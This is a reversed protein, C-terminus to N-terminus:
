GIGICGVQEMLHFREVVCHATLRAEPDHDWCEAITDCLIEMGPDRRWSDPIDPRGRGHLVVDRMTEVCPHQRVMSGFPLEYNKVEGIADCRSAVEWLVLSLSYVDMQKFSELDELNVRSELVEPAM